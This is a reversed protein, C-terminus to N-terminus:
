VYATYEGSNMPIDPSYTFAARTGNQDQVTWKGTSFQEEDEGLWMAFQALPYAPMADSYVISKLNSTLDSAAFDIAITFPDDTDFTYRSTSSRM